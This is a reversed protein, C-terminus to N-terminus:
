EIGFVATRQVAENSSTDKVSVRLEYIGPDFESFDMGGNVELWGKGEITAADASVQMWPKQDVPQGSRYLETKWELYSGTGTPAERYVRFFYDCFDGRAYLPIGQVMRIQELESVDIGEKADPDTGLPELLMLSSMELRDKALEPVEVWTSATGMRETGEERVGVRVQYVGPKLALRRLFRFGSTKAQAMRDRSLHGEVQASIAEVQKASSDYVAYLIELEIVNRQDQRLYQFSDGDFYVTLSVQKDDNDTALFDAKASVGLDTVPLPAMMARLLRQQPTKAEELDQEAKIDLPTFGKPARIKYEPHNRVRVEISRFRHDEIGEPLYYSLVYYYRNADFARNLLEHLDNNNTYLEGGTERAISHLGNLQEQESLSVFSELLGPGPPLCRTDPPPSGSTGVAGTAENAGGSSDDGAETLERALEVSHIMRRSADITPPGQLGKADISYIVVGSRVARNIADRLESDDIDGFSSDLMTFGDSFVVIMRKGPLDMMQEAIDKLIWLATKRYHSAEELIMAAKIRAMNLYYYCEEMRKRPDPDENDEQIVIEVALRQADLREHLFDAALRPSFYSEISSPGVRIQEVANHLLQRDRTFQQAIGLTQGSTVLAVLDQGTLREKIFRRVAQKVRNLNSFSLHLSDVFLVTTRVPPESLREQIQKPPAVTDEAGVKKRVEAAPKRKESEVESINFFSIEQAKGNEMLEFDKKKLNEVIRGERDTVVARVEMLNTKAKFKPSEQTEEPKTQLSNNFAISNAICILMVTIAPYAFCRIM